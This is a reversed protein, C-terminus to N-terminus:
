IMITGSMGTLKNVTQQCSAVLLTFVLQLVKVHTVCLNALASFLTRRGGGGEGWECVRADMIIDMLLIKM